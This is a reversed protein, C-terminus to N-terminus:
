GICKRLERSLWFPQPAKPLGLFCLIWGYAYGPLAFADHGGLSKSFTTMKHKSFHKKLCFLTIRRFDFM